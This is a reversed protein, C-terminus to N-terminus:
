HQPQVGAHTYPYQVWDINSTKKNLNFTITMATVHFSSENIHNSDNCLITNGREDGVRGPIHTRIGMNRNIQCCFQWWTRWKCITKAEEASLILIKRPGLFTLYKTSTNEKKEKSSLYRDQFIFNWQKSNKLLLCLFYFNNSIREPSLCKHTFAINWLIEFLQSDWLM